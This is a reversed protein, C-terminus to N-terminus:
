LFSAAEDALLLSVDLTIARLEVASTAIAKLSASTAVSSAVPIESASSAAIGSTTGRASVVIPV